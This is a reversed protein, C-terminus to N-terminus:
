EGSILGAPGHHCQEPTVPASADSSLLYTPRFHDMVSWGTEADGLLLAHPVWMRHAMGTKPHTGLFLRAGKTRSVATPNKLFRTLSVFEIDSEHDRPWAGCEFAHDIIYDAYEGM